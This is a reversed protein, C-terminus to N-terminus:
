LKSGSFLIIKFIATIDYVILCLVILEWGIIKLSFKKRGQLYVLRKFKIPKLHTKFYIVYLISIVVVLFLPISLMRLLNSACYEYLVTGNVQTVFAILYLINGRKDFFIFRKKDTKGKGKTDNDIM